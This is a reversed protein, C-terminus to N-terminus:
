APTPAATLGACGWCRWSCAGASAVIMRAPRGGETYVPWERARPHLRGKDGAGGWPLRRGTAETSQVRSPYTVATAHPAVPAVLCLHRVLACAGM